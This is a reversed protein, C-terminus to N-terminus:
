LGCNNFRSLLEGREDFRLDNKDAAKRGPSPLHAVPAIDTFKLDDYLSWVGFIRWGIRDGFAEYVSQTYKDFENGTELYAKEQPTFGFRGDSNTTWLEDIKQLSDCPFNEISNADLASNEKAVQLIIKNTETDAQQWEQNQLYTELQAYNPKNYSQWICAGIGGILAITGLAGLLLKKPFKSVPEPPAIAQLAEAADQYREKWQYSIMKCLASELKFGITIQQQELAKKFRDCDRPLNSSLLGTLAQIGLIGVAYIDSCTGPQGIAQEPPMYISTGVIITSGNKDAKAAEKVAGFDILVISGDSRRMINAPKIDRHIKGQKHVVSLASLLEKLFDITEEESWKKGAEFEQTLDRGDILEQVLFFEEDEEFYAFLRPIRDHEGLKALSKAEDEFLRTAMELTQPNKDKPSLHKVVRDPQEPFDLDKAIYTDGFAGNGLKKTVKYRGKLIKGVHM